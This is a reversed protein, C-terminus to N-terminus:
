FIDFFVIIVVKKTNFNLEKREGAPNGYFEIQQGQEVSNGQASFKYEGYNTNIKLQYKPPKCEKVGMSICEFHDFTKSESQEIKSRFADAFIQGQATYSNM